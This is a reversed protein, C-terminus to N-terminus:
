ILLFKSIVGKEEIVNRVRLFDEKKSPAIYGLDFNVNELFQADIFNPLTLLVSSNCAMIKKPISDAMVIFLEAPITNHIVEYGLKRIENLKTNNDYRHCYYIIKSFDETCELIVKKLLDIEKSVDVIGVESLPSGFYWFEDSSKQKFKRSKLIKFDNRVVRIGEKQFEKEDFFASFFMIESLMIKKKLFSNYFVSVILNSLNVLNLPWELNERYQLNNKKIMEEKITYSAAGDDLSVIKDYKVARAFRRMWVARLDGIIVQDFSGNVETTFKKFCKYDSYFSKISGRLNGIFNFNVRGSKFFYENKLFEEIIIKNKKAGPRTRIYITAFKYDITELYEGLNLLQLPSEVLCLLKVDNILYEINEDLM